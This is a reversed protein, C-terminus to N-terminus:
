ISENSLLVQTDPSNLQDFDTIRRAIIISNGKISNELLTKEPDLNRHWIGFASTSFEWGYAKKSEDTLDVLGSEKSNQEQVMHYFLLGLKLRVPARFSIKLNENEGLLVKFRIPISNLFLTSKQLPLDNRYFWPAYRALTIESFLQWLISITYPLLFACVAALVSNFRFQQNFFYFVALLFIIVASFLLTYVLKELGSFTNSCHKLLLVHIFGLGLFLILQIPKYFTDDFFYVSIIFLVIAAVSSIILSVVPRRYQTLKRFFQQFSFQQVVPENMTSFIFLDFLM